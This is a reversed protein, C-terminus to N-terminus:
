EVIVQHGEVKGDITINLVYIGKALGAFPLSATNNKIQVKRKSQGMIDFLEGTIEFKTIPKNTKDILEINVVDKLPSIVTVFSSNFLPRSTNTSASFLFTTLNFLLRGLSPNIENYNVSQFPTSLIGMNVSADNYLIPNLNNNLTEISIFQSQNSALYM